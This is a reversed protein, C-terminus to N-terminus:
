AHPPEPPPSALLRLALPTAQHHSWRGAKRVSALGAKVLISLHHSLTGQPMGLAEVLDCVCWEQERILHLIKLRPVESLAKHWAAQQALEAPWSPPASLPLACCGEQEEPVPAEFADVM